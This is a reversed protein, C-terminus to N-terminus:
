DIMAVEVGRSIDQVNWCCSAACCVGKFPKVDEQISKLAKEVIRSPVQQSNPGHWYKAKPPVDRGSQAANEPMRMRPGQTGHSSSVECEM